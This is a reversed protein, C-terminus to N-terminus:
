HNLEDGKQNLKNQRTLLYLGVSIAIIFALGVYQDIPVTDLDTNGNGEGPLPPDQLIMSLVINISMALIYQM